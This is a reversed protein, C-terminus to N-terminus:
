KGTKQLEKVTEKKGREETTLKRCRNILVAAVKFRLRWKDAM